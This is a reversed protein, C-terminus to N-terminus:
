VTSRFFVGQIQSSSILSLFLIPCSHAFRRCGQLDVVFYRNHLVAAVAEFSYSYKSCLCFDLSMTKFFYADFRETANAATAANGDDARTRAARITRITRAWAYELTAVLVFPEVPADLLAGFAWAVMNAIALGAIWRYRASLLRGDPFVLPVGIFACVVPYFFLSDGLRAPHVRAAV